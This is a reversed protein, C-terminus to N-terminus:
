LSVIESISADAAGFQFFVSARRSAATPFL